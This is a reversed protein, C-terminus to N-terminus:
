GVTVPISARSDLDTAVTMSVVRRNILPLQSSPVDHEELVTAPRTNKSLKEYIQVDNTILLMKRVVTAPPGNPLVNPENWM